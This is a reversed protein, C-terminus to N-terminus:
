PVPKLTSYKGYCYESIITNESDKLYACDGKNGWIASGAHEYNFGCWEPHDENTYIHCIQGPEIIFRPFTFVNNSKDSLTWDKLLIAEVGENLIEVYEDPEKENKVGDFNIDTIVIKGTTIVDDPVVPVTPTPNSVVELSFRDVEDDPLIISDTTEDILEGEANRLSAIDGGNNWVGSGGNGFSFGCSEPHVENTYIRCEQNAQIEYRPFKFVHNSEDDHLTWDKLQIAKTDDNRIIVFEDSEQDKVGNYFIGVLIIKDPDSVRSIIIIGVVAVLILLGAILRKVKKEKIRSDSLLAAIGVIIGSLPSFSPEYIFWIISFLLVVVMGVIFYPEIKKWGVEKPINEPDEAVSDNKESDGM